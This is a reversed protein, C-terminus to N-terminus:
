SQRRTIKLEIDSPLFLKLREVVQDANLDSFIIHWAKHWNYPIMSIEGRNKGKRWKRPYTHHKSQSM